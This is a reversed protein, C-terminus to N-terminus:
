INTLWYLAENKNYLPRSFGHAALQKTIAERVNNCGGTQQPLSSPMNLYVPYNHDLFEEYLPIQEM